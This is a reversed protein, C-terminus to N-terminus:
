NPKSPYLNSNLLQAQPTTPNNQVQYPGPGYSPQNFGINPIAQPGENISLNNFLSNIGTSYKRNKNFLSSNQNSQNSHSSPNNSINTNTQNSNTPNIITSNDYNYEQHNDMINVFKSAKILNKPVIEETDSQMLILKWKDIIKKEGLKEINKLITDVLKKKIEGKTIKLAKQIVYNGYNNKM